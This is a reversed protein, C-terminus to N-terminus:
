RARILGEQAVSAVLQGDRSWLSGRCFGRGGTMLPSDSQYLLWDDFRFDRHFWMAHDLSACHVGPQAFNLRHPQMAVRMLSFDSAYALMAQHVLPDDPLKDAARMWHLAHPPRADPMLPDLPDVSRFDLPHAQHLFERMREPMQDSIARQRLHENVLSEPPPAAPMEGQHSPGDEPRHFSASMQFIERGHQIGAVRRLTFSAGDRVRDVEYVIPESKDGARLFYGHLSHITQAETVTLAAAMLSQGLVQGGFVAPSGIDLNRGRFQDEELAELGLLDVLDILAQRTNDPAAQAAHPAQPEHNQSMTDGNHRAAM